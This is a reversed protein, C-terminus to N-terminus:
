AYLSINNNTSAADSTYASALKRKAADPQVAEAMQQRQQAALETRGLAALKDGASAVQYDQASPDRPAMAAARIRRGKDINAQPKSEASTDISVEGGTAYQKGDPGYVYSYTAGSTALGQAAALHAAEHARVNRDIEKLEAVKRQEEPTLRAQGAAKQTTGQEGAQKADRRVGTTSGQTPFVATNSLPIASVPM